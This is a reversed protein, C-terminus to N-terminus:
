ASTVFISGTQDTPKLTCLDAYDMRQSHPRYVLRMRTDMAHWGAAPGIGEGGHRVAAELWQRDALRVSSNNQARAGM